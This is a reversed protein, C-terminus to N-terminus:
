SLVQGDLSPASLSHLYVQPYFCITIPLESHCGESSNVSKDSGVGNFNKSDPHENLL